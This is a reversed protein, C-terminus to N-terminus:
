QKIPRIACKWNRFYQTGSSCINTKIKCENLIKCLYLVDYFIQQVIELCSFLYDYSMEMQSVTCFPNWGETPKRNLICCSQFNFYALTAHGFSSGEGKLSNSVFVTITIFGLWYPCCYVRALPIIYLDSLCLSNFLDAVSLFM